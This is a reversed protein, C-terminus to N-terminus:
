LDLHFDLLQFDEELPVSNEDLMFQSRITFVFSEGTPALLSYCLDSVITGYMVDTCGPFIKPLLNPAINLFVNELIDSPVQVCLCRDESTITIQASRYFIRGQNFPLCVYCQAYVNNDDMHLERKCKGCGSYVIDPLSKLIDSISTEHNILIKRKNPIHFEIQSISGKVQIEGSYRDEIMTLLSMQKASSINYIYRKRFDIARQDDDFLCECSSWPTTHLELDGSIINKKCFLYKFVWIHDRKRHVQDCWSVCTGWLVLTSTQEKVQEVTLVIKNQQLGKFHYLSEKLFSIGNVKLISHLLLEPQLEALNVYQVNDLTQPQRPSLVSLYYHKKHIYDLLEKLGSFDAAHSSAPFLTSCSGLNVLKSRYSSQLLLDESWRDECVSVNTLLIIEGPVLALCWFASNGWMLVKHKVESQDTVVITALPLNSGINPGSKVKIEKVHCPQLVVVMVNYKKSKDSCHKLLTLSKLPSQQQQEDYRKVTCKAPSLSRKSQHEDKSSQFSGSGVKRKKSSASGLYDVINSQKTASEGQGEIHLLGTESQQSKLSKVDLGQDSIDTLLNSSCNFSEPSSSGTTCNEVFVAQTIFASPRLASHSAAERGNNVPSQVAFQSSTLIALFETEASITSCADNGSVNPNAAEASCSTSYGHQGACEMRQLNHTIHCLETSAVSDSIIGTIHAMTKQSELICTRGSPKELVDCVSKEHKQKESPGEGYVVHNASIQNNRSCQFSTDQIEHFFPVDEWVAKGCESVLKEIGCQAITPAGIFVHIVGKNSM